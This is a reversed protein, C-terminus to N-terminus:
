VSTRDTPRRVTGEGPLLPQHTIKEQQNQLLLACCGLMQRSVIILRYQTAFPAYLNELPSIEGSRFGGRISFVEM